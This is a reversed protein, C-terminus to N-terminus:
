EESRADPAIKEAVYTCLCRASCFTLDRVTEPSVIEAKGDKLVVYTHSLEYFDLTGSHDYVNRGCVCCDGREASM